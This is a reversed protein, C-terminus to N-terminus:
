KSSGKMQHHPSHCQIFTVEICVTKLCFGIFKALCKETNESSLFDMAELQEQFISIKSFFLVFCSPQARNCIFDGIYYIKILLGQM